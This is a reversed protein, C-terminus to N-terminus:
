RGPDAPPLSHHRVFRALLTSFTEIEADTFDELLGSIWHHRRTRARAFASRGDDTLSVLAGRGDAPDPRRIVLGIQELAAVQRSMTPKGVEFHAALDTIRSGTDENIRVLIRYASVTLQQHLDRAAAPAGARIRTVFAVVEQEVDSVARDRRDGSPSNANM